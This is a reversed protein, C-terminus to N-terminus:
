PSMESVTPGSPYAGMASALADWIPRYNSQDNVMSQNLVLAFTLTEGGSAVFEGSLAKVAPPDQNFPLNGLTGTKAKLKGTMPGDTFVSSLTGSVGAVALGDIVSQDAAELADVLTQCRLTASNSLGSGDVLNLESVDIGLSELAGTVTALGNARSGVGTAHLGLEKVLMEATNNDSNQLMEAIVVSLPSSDIAALEVDTGAPVGVGSGASVTIGAANLRQIFERAAGAAPDSARYDDGEIRADNAMLADIPGAEIGAVGDGWESYYWEDDYRSGDGLVRGNIETVGSVALSSALADLSTHGFVPYRDLNSNPYWDGSLLPDGGGVLVIDGNIVGGVPSPGMVRTTFTFDAGLIEIAATAIVIKVTSAPIATRAGSLELPVGDVSLAFCSTSAMSSTVAGLASVLQARNARGSIEPAIRRVSMVSRSAAVQAGSSPMSSLETPSATNGEPLLSRLGALVVVPVLAVIVLVAVPNFQGRRPQTV